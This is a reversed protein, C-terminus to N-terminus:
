ARSTRFPLLLFSLPVGSLFFSSSHLALKFFLSHFSCITLFLPESFPSPTQSVLWEDFLRSLGHVLVTCPTTAFNTTSGPDTVSWCQSRCFASPSRPTSGGSSYFLCSPLLPLFSLSFSHRSLAVFARQVCHQVQRVRCCYCCSCCCCCLVHLAWCRPQRPQGAAALSCACSHACHIRPASLLALDSSDTKISKVMWDVLFTTTIGKTVTPNLRREAAMLSVTIATDHRQVLAADQCHLIEHLLSTM